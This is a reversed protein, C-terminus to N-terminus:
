MVDHDPSDILCVNKAIGLIFVAKKLTESFVDLLRLADDVGPDKHVVM